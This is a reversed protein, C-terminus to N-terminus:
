TPGGSPPGEDPGDGDIEDRDFDELDDDEFNEPGRPTSYVGKPLFLGLFVSVGGIAVLVVAGILPLFLNWTPNALPSLTYTEMFTASFAVPTGNPNSINLFLPFTLGGSASWHGSNLYWTASPTASPCVGHIHPCSISTYLAVQLDGSAAWTLTVSASSENVGELQLAFSAHGPVDPLSVPDLQTSTPGTSFSLSALLVGAGIVAVAAGAVLLGTRM